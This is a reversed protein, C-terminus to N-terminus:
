WGLWCNCRHKVWPSSLKCGDWCSHCMCEYSVRWIVTEICLACIILIHYTSIMWCYFSRNIFIAVWIIELCNPHTPSFCAGSATYEPVWKYSIMRNYFYHYALPHKSNFPHSTPVFHVAEFLLNLAGGTWSVLQILTRTILSYYLKMTNRWQPLQTFSVHPKQIM